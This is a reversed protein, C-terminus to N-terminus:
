YELYGLKSVYAQAGLVGFLLGPMWTDLYKLKSVYTRTAPVILVSGPIWAHVRGFNSVPVLLSRELLQTDLYRPKTRVSAEIGLVM